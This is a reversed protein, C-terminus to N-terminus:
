KFAGLRWKLAEYKKEKALVLYYELDKVASEGKERIKSIALELADEFGRWYDNM